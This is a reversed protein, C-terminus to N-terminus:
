RFLFYKWLELTQRESYLQQHLRVRIYTPFIDEELM